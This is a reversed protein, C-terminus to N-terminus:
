YERGRRLELAYVDPREPFNALAHELTLVVKDRKEHWDALGPDMSRLSGFVHTESFLERRAETTLLVAPGEHRAFLALRAVSPVGLMRVAASANGQETAAAATM